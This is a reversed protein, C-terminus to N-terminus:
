HAPHMQLNVKVRNCVQTDVIISDVTISFDLIM